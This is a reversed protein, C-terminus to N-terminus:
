RPDKAAEPTEDPGWAFTPAAKPDYGQLHGLDKRRDPRVYQFDNGPFAAEILAALGPDYEKLEDRTDVHNHVNDDHRNTGFWSQVGEAWYEHINTAAYTKKWLGKALADDYAARLKKNFDPDLKALGQDHICHAFEHILINETNYPDGPYNLLNEEGCSTTEGGLGRARRNWYSAPKLDRHEPIDTTREDFAMVAVRVKDKVMADIVDRRGELMRGVLYAAEKLAYDSVKGSALIPLGDVEICKQYFPDLSWSKPPEVIALPLADDAWLPLSLLLVVPLIPRLLPTM